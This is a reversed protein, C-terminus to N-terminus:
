RRTASSCRIPSRRAEPIVTRMDTMVNIMRCCCSFGMSSAAQRPESTDARTQGIAAGNSMAVVSRSLGKRSPVQKEHDIAPQDEGDENTDGRRPHAADDDSTDCKRREHLTELRALDRPEHQTMRARTVENYGHQTTTGHLTTMTTSRRRTTTTMNDDTDDRRAM